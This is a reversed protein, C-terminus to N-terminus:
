SASVCTWDAQAPANDLVVFVVVAILTDRRLDVV